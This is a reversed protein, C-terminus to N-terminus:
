FEKGFLNEMEPMHRDVAQIADQHFSYKFDCVLTKFISKKLDAPITPDDLGAILALRAEKYKGMGKQLIEAQWLPDKYEIADKLADEFRFVSSLYPFFSSKVWAQFHPQKATQTLLSRYMDIADQERGLYGLISAVRIMAQIKTGGEPLSDAFDRITKLAEEDRNQLALNRALKEYFIVKQYDSVAPEALIRSITKELTDSPVAPNPSTVKAAREAADCVFTLLAVREQSSLNLEKLAYEVADIANKVNGYPNTSERRALILAAEMRIANGVSPDRLIQFRLQTAEAEGSKLPAGAYAYSRKDIKEANQLTEKAREDPSLSDKGAGAVALTRGGSLLTLLFFFLFIHKM